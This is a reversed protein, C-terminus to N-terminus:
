VVVPFGIGGQSTIYFQNGEENDSVFKDLSDVKKLYMSETEKKSFSSYLYLDFKEKLKSLYYLKHLGFKFEKKMQEIVETETMQNKVCSEFVSHGFKEKCEAVLVIKGNFRLAKTSLHFVKQAQYFNIDKPMGGASAIVIDAKSHLAIKNNKELFCKAKEWSEISDGTFYRLIENNNNCVINIIFDLPCLRLSDMMELHVPNNEVCGIEARSDIMKSHNKMISERDAVGPFISKRGGSFGAYYHYLVEGIAIRFDSKAVVENIFLQNGTFTEGVNVLTKSDCSHAMVRYNKAIESGVITETEEKTPKRHTGTAIVICIKKDEIGNKNLFEVLVKLISETPTSRTHDNVIISIAKPNKRKIQERLSMGVTP